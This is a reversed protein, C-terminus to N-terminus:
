DAPKEALAALWRRIGAHEADIGTLPAKQPPTGPASEAQSDPPRAPTGIGNETPTGPVRSPNAADAASVYIFGPRGADHAPKVAAEESHGAPPAIPDPEDFVAGLPSDSSPLLERTMAPEPIRHIARWLPDALWTPMKSPLWYKTPDGIRGSGSRAVLNKTCATKLWNGLTRRTPRQFDEPWCELLRMRTLPEGADELVARLEPWYDPFDSDSQEPLISFASGDENLEIALSPPTEDNRSFGLLLRRRDGAVDAAFPHLELLIDAFAPLAISGRAARGPAARGKSPHHNLLTALGHEALSTLPALAQQMSETSNECRLPLFRSLTDFVVLDVGRRVKL